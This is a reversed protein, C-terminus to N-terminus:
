SAPQVDPIGDAPPQTPAGTAERIPADGNDTVLVPTLNQTTGGAIRTVQVGSIGAHRDASYRFPAAWPGTFSGGAREVADVIGERTPNPGAAQLAQVFTYAESMGYVRYNTLEGEGGHADWVRQFLQTWPNDPTDVGPLYETTLVGELLGADTVAGESFRALLSGVLAPDSGINSYIWQPRYNLRLSQLQSLATYSPVNFGIVLDAGAAQLAAIQPAVDTNGPTYREAAVIQNELYRRAGIEADRGLDDDQLFLGVRAQPFNQAVYQGIIKAEIEYDPQWGFTMPNEAPQDWLLSGSSVFLDPVGESNLHDLVASHTPTGLGGMMAFVQDQLVLENVVQSTQTPNYADDRFVYEIQRGHIGGAANVFDFYAKTGTPIESYGPAAVGTLPFHAGVKVSTPTIGVEAETGAGGGEPRGGAGCASVLVAAALAACLATAKM